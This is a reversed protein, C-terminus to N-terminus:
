INFFDISLSDDIDDFCIEDIPELWRYNFMYGNSNLYNLMEADGGFESYEVKACWCMKYIICPDRDMNTIRIVANDYVDMGHNWGPRQDIDEPKHIIFRAGINPKLSDEYRFVVKIM